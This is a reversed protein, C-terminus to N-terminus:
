WELGSWSPADVKAPAHPHSEVPLARLALQYDIAQARDGRDPLVAIVDPDTIGYKARYVTM